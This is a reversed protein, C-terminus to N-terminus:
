KLIDDYYQLIYNYLHSSGFRIYKGGFLIFKGFNGLNQGVGGPYRYQFVDTLLVGADTGIQHVNNSQGLGSNGLVQVLDLFNSQELSGKLALVKTITDVLFTPLFQLLGEVLEKGINVTITTLWSFM